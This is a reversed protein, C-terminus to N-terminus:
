DDAADSTYLLCVDFGEVYMNPVDYPTFITMCGPGMPSGKFAGAEFHLSAEMAVLEGNQKAGIRVKSRSASAPGSARFVEERSMVMKVPRGSKKSLIMAVPELYVTTKGGFGGGIESAIVKIQGLKM